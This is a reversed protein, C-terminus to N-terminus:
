ASEGTFDQEDGEPEMHITAEISFKERIATEIQNALQHATKLTNEPPLVIHFTLETHSGYEHIHFHHAKVPKGYAANCAHRIGELLAENPVKGLLPDISNNVIKYASYLILLAVLIGLIGDIWWFFKSFFIGVLVIVSSLADSRHHWGDAELAKSGSKRYTWFAFQTLGEKLLISTITAILAITGYHAPSHTILKLVSERAFEYAIFALIVGILFATILEARGHGFPHREDPPKGSVKAGILVFVSSITDSLTHWADAIIAISGSVVGAWYKLIFLLTNVIISLWGELYSWKQANQV